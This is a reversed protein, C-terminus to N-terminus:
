REILFEIAKKLIEEDSDRLIVVYEGMLSAFQPPSPANYVIMNEYLERFENINHKPPIPNIKLGIFSSYYPKDIIPKLEKRAIMRAYQQYIDSDEAYNIADLCLGCPPRAKIDLVLLKGDPLRFFELHFFREKINFIGLINQGIEILDESIKRQIYFISDLNELITEMHGTAYHMSSISVLNGDKDVLGDLTVIPAQVFEEMIFDIEPKEAFFKKLEEDNGLKYTYEGGLSNEPKVCVPYHIQNILSKADEFNKVIRGKPVTFGAKELQEKTLSKSKLINLDSKTLGPVNFDERLKAELKLWSENHSEIRDIKGHKFSLYACARLMQDYNNINDVKYYESLTAKLDSDLLNYPESGIGLVTVGEAKLYIAFYKYNPPFNPAIFIYNM